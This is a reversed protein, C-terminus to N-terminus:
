ASPLQRRCTPCELKVRMWKELCDNHFFHNCPTVMREGPKWVNVPGMCIVCEVGGGGEEDRPGSGELDSCKASRHYNYKEPLVGPPVLYRPGRYHQVLLVGAQLWLWLAVLWFMGPHPALNLFNGQYVYFYFPVFMRTATMGVIYSPILPRRLDYYASRLIQPVWFSYLGFVLPGLGGCLYALALGGLLCSYFRSYMTSIDRRPDSYPDEATRRLRYLGMLYRMEFVSFVIFKFLAVTAFANFLAEVAVSATLHTLCLYADALAQMGISLLSVKTAAAASNGVEIQRVVFLVQLVCLCSLVLSYNTLKTTYEDMRVATGNLELRIGCEPSGIGGVVEIYEIPSKGGGSGEGAGAGPSGAGVGGAIPLLAGDEGPLTGNAISRRVAAESAARLTLDLHCKKLTDTDPHLGGAARTGMSGLAGAAGGAGGPLAVGGGRGAKM